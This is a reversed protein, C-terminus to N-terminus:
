KDKEEPNNDEPDEIVIAPKVGLSIIGEEKPIFYKQRFKLAV